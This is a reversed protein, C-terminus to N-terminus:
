RAADDIAVTEPRERINEFLVIEGRERKMSAKAKERKVANRFRRISRELEQMAEAALSQENIAHMRCNVAPDCAAAAGDRHQHGVVRQWPMRDIGLENPD